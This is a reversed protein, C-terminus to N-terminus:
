PHWGFKKAIAAIDKVDIRYDGNIDAFPNWRPHGPYSGFAKAATSVDKVNVKIDPSPLQIKFPYSPLGLDDYLTSGVIDEKITVWFTFTYNIWKCYLNWADWNPEEIHFAVKLVHKGAAPWYVRKQEHPVGAKLTVQQTEILGDDLYIYKTGIVVPSLRMIVPGPPMFMLIEVNYWELPVPPEEQPMFVVIDDKNLHGNHDNDIWDVLRYRTEMPWTENWRSSIPNSLDVENSEIVIEERILNEFTVKYFVTEIEPTIRHSYESAGLFHIDVYVPYIKFYGNPSHIPQSGPLNTQVVSCPKNTVLLISSRTYEELRWPGSGIMNPDPAFDTPNILGEEIIPKWVHKPLIPTNGIWSLARYNKAVNFLIEFNYPDFIKFDLISKVNEIWLPPPYGNTELLRKLEVFTFYVDATTLPTGDNWTVDTRLTVKIKTCSGYIPHIYTGVTFNKAIWPEWEMWYPDRKILTDYILNLVLWDSPSTAYIPNLSHLGTEPFGYRITMNEGNGYAYGTPHMNLFSFFNDISQGITNVTGQWYQNRYKNEGDDPIIGHGATGGTYRRYMAKYDVYVCLPVKFSKDVFVQQTNRSATVAEEENPANILADLWYDLETDNIGNYDNTSSHFRYLDTPEEFNCSGTYLHFNRNIMVIMIAQLANAYIRNVRVHVNNLEDAIKDGVLWMHLNDIRIVFRLELDEGPDKVNNHNRDWFRWGDPGIPYGDEDLLSAATLPNYPYPNPIDLCYKGLAPSIPVWLPLYLDPGIIEDFWSRNVLYAIAQRFSPVSCPNPYVPNPYTNNNNNIDLMLFDTSAGGFVVNITENFPPNMWRKYWYDTLTLGLVDIIGNELDEYTAGLKMLLKDARPGFEEFKMDEPTRDQYIWASIPISSALTAMAVAVFILAFKIKM